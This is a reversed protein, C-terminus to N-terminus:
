NNESIEPKEAQSQASHETSQEARQASSETDQADNSAEHIAENETGQAYSFIGAEMDVVSPVELQPHIGEYYPLKKAIHSIPVLIQHEDSMTITVLDETVKSPTLDVKRISKKVSDPVNKLQQVFEKILGADSFTVDMREEPLADTAVEKKVYEGSTLIPYYKSDKQLYGLIGYEQVDIKFTLPFQYTMEVNEIWPSSAKLNQEYHHRNKYVTVTYDRQDIKSSSKLEEQSVVKNGTFEITKMTALPTLFYLSALFILSSTVLVPLARYWHIKEIPVKPLEVQEVEVEEEDQEQDQAEAEAGEEVESESESDQVADEESTPFDTDIEESVTDEENSPEQNELEAKMEEKKQKLEARKKELEAQKKAKEQAKKELYEKNRVQWESLSLQATEQKDEKSKKM